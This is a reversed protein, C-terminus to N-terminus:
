LNFLLEKLLSRNDSKNLHSQIQFLLETMQLLQNSLTLFIEVIPQLVARYFWLNWPLKKEPLLV